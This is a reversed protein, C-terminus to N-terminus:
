EHRLASRRLPGGDARRWPGTPHNTPDETWELGLARCASETDGRTIDLLPRWWIGRRPAMGAISRPGSGRALGLLVTEAQDDLTHGLLVAHAGTQDLARALASYRSERAAAEPGS